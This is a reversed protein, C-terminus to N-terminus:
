TLRSVFMGRGVCGGLLARLEDPRGRPEKVLLPELRRGEGINRREGVHREAVDVVVELRLVGEALGHDGRVLDREALPERRPRRRVAVRPEPEPAENPRRDVRGVGDDLEAAGVPAEALLELLETGVRRERLRARPEEGDVDIPGLLLEDLDAEAPPPGPREGLIRTAEIWPVISMACVM